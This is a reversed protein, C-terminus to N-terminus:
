FASTLRPVSNRLSPALHPTGSSTTESQSLDAIIRDGIGFGGANSLSRGLAEGAFDALADGSSSQDGDVDHASMEALLEKMMQAEFEHAAGLLRQNPLRQEQAPNMSQNCIKM